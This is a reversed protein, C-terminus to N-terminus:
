QTLEICKVPYHPPYYDKVSQGVYNRIKGQAIRGRFERRDRWGEASKDFIRHRYPTTEPPDWGEIEYVEIVMYDRNVCFAYIIKALNPCWDMNWVGRAWEYRYEDNGEANLREQNAKESTIRCLIGCEEIGM